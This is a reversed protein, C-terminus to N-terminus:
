FRGMAARGGVVKKVNGTKAKQKKSIASYKKDAPKKATDTSKENM